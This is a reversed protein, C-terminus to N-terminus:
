MALQLRIVNTWFVHIGSVPKREIDSLWEREANAQIKVFHNVYWTTGFTWTRDSNPLINAARPSRSPLGLAPDFNSYYTLVDLRAALEVAGFGKGTFLPTKPQGGKSKMKGLATWTGTVYWGRTLADPLDQLRIGQQKREQSMHIYEGKVSFPGETWAMEAGLRQRRGNVYLRDFFTFNSTTQGHIGNAGTFMDGWTTAIGLYTHRVTKPLLKVYRLPEGSVRAAYTRGGSPIGRVDSNEGDYRFVGAEYDLHKEHLIKGHLMAGRERAPALFKSVRSRYVLDLRDPSTNEEMGFPIKFKGAKFNLMEFPKFDVNVDKWPHREQIDYFTARMEREIEYDFYNTVKGKVAFRARTLQYTPAPEPPENSVGPPNVIPPTYSLWDFHWKTKVDLRFFDGIRLSPRDKFRFQVLHGGNDTAKAPEEEELLTPNQACLLSPIFLLGILITKRLAAELRPSM